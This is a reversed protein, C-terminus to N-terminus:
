QAVSCGPAGAPTLQGGPPWLWSPRTVPARAGDRLDRGAHPVRAPAVPGSGSRAVSSNPGIAAAMVLEVGQEGARDVALQEAAAATAAQVHAHWAALSRRDVGVILYVM